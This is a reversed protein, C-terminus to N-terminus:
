FQFNNRGIAKAHCMAADANRTLADVDIGDHPFLSIGISAGVHVDQGDITHRRRCAELLKQAIDAVENIGPADPLLVVFEDGGQRCVTDSARVCAKLRNAIEKLLRDGADHGLSDNVHKPVDDKSSGNVIRFVQSIPRGAAQAYRWGTMAEAVARGNLVDISSGDPRTIMLGSPFRFQDALRILWSLL